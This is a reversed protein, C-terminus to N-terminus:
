INTNDLIKNKTKKENSFGRIWINNTIGITGLNRNLKPSGEIAEYQIWVQIDKTFM